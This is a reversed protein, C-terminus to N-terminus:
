PNPRLAAKFAEPDRLILGFRQGNGMDVIISDRFFWRREEVRRIQSLSTRIELGYIEPLFMLNFPFFPTIVIERDTVAVLLCRSAGGIRGIWSGDNWGSAMRERFVAGLPSRPFVSKGNIRRYIISAAIWGGIWFLAFVFPWDSTM